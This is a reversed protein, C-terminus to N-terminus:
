RQRVSLSITPQESMSVRNRQKTFSCCQVPAAESGRRRPQKRRGEKLCGYGRPRTERSYPFLSGIREAKIPGASGWFCLRGWITLAALTGPPHCAWQSFSLGDIWTRSNNSSQTPYALAQFEGSFFSKKKQLAELPGAKMDVPDWPGPRASFCRCIWLTGNWASSFRKSSSM